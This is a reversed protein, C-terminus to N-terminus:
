LPFDIFIVYESHTNTTEHIWFAIRMPWITMQPRDLQVINKWMIEYVTCNKFSFIISCSIRTKIEGATSESVNRMKLLVSRSIIFFTYQEEHLTSMINAM